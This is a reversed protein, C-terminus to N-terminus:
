SARRRGSCAPLMALARSTPGVASSTSRPQVITAEIWAVSRSPPRSPARSIARCTGRWCPASCGPSPRRAARAAGPDLLVLDARDGLRHLLAAPEGRLGLDGVRQEVLALRDRARRAVADLRDLLVAVGAAGVDHELEPALVPMSCIRSNPSFTSGCKRSQHVGGDGISRSRSTSVALRIISTWLKVPSSCPMARASPRAARRARAQVHLPLLDLVAARVREAGPAARAAALAEHEVAM